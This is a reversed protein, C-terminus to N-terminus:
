VTALEFANIKEGKQLHVRAIKRDPRQLPKKKKGVRKVKGKKMHTKIDKVHVSYLREIAGRIIPKSADPDVEFTFIGLKTNKMSQETIVPKIIIHM